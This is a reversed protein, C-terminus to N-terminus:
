AGPSPHSKANRPAPGRAQMSLILQQAKAVRAPDLKEVYYSYAQKEHDWESYRLTGDLRVEFYRYSNNKTTSVTVNGNPRLQVAVEESPDIKPKKGLHGLVVKGLYFNNPFYINRLGKAKWKDRADLFARYNHHFPLGSKEGLLQLRKEPTNLEEPFIFDKPNDVFESVTIGTTAWTGDREQVEVVIADDGSVAHHGSSQLTLCGDFDNYHGEDIFRQLPLTLETGNKKFKVALDQHKNGNLLVVNDHCFDCKILEDLAIIRTGNHDQVGLLIDKPCAPHNNDIYKFSTDIRLENNM